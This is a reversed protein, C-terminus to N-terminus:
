VYLLFVIISLFIREARERTIVLFLPKTEHTRPISTFIDSNRYLYLFCFPESVM